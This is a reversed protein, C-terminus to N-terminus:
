MQLISSNRSPAEVHIAIAFTRRGRKRGKREKSNRKTFIHGM